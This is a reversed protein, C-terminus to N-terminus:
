AHITGTIYFAPDKLASVPPNLLDEDSVYRLNLRHPSLKFVLLLISNAAAMETNTRTTTRTITHRTKIIYIQNLVGGSAANLM